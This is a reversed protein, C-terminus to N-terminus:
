QLVLDFERLLAHFSDFIAFAGSFDVGDLHHNPIVVCRMGASLASTMGIPTDEIALCRETPTKLSAAAAQYIDPAPKARAVQDSTIVCHFTERLGIAILIRDVYTTGSNSAVGIPLGRLKVERIFSELGDVPKVERGIADMVRVGHDELIEEVGLPIGTRQRVFVATERPEMGIMQHYEADSLAKGYLALFERWMELAITESDVILGDLDLVVAHIYEKPM